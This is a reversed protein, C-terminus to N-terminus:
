KNHNSNSALTYEFTHIIESDTMAVCDYGRWKIMEFILQTTNEMTYKQFRFDQTRNFCHRACVFAGM